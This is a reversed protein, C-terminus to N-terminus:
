RGLPARPATGAVEAASEFRDQLAAAARVAAAQLVHTHYVRGLDVRMVGRGALAPVAPSGNIPFGLASATLVIGDGPGFSVTAGPLAGTLGAATQPGGPHSPDNNGYLLYVRVEPPIPRENLGALLSNGADPPLSWPAAATPRWFPFVPMMVRALRTKSLGAFPFFSPAHEGLYPLVAGENPVAVLILRNVLSSWGDVDYAINWRAFLGGVSYGVVNIKAAYTTPLVVRRAYAALAQAGEELGMTHSQYSFWFLTPLGGAETYGYQALRSLVVRDPPRREDSYGPIIVTPLLLTVERRETVVTGGRRIAVDIPFKLNDTLPAVPPFSGIQRGGTRIVGHPLDFDMTVAAPLQAVSFTAHAPVAGVDTAVSVTAPGAAETSLGQTPVSVQFSRAAPITEGGAPGTSSVAAVVARAPPAAAAFGAAAAPGSAFAAGVVLVM